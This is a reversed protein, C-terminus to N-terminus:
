KASVAIFSPRYVLQVKVQNRIPDNDRDTYVTRNLKFELQLSKTVVIKCSLYARFGSGSIVPLSMQYYMDPEYRYLLIGGAQGSHICFGSKLVFRDNINFFAWDIGLYSNYKFNENGSPHYSYGFESQLYSGKSDFIQRYRFLSKLGAQDLGLKVNLFHGDRNDRKVGARIKWDAKPSLSRTDLGFSEESELDMQFFWGRKWEWLYNFELRKSDSYPKRNVDLKTSRKFYGPTGLRYLVIFRHQEHGFFSLGAELAQGGTSVAAMEVFAIAGALAYKLHGGYRWYSDELYQIKVIGAGAHMRDTKMNLFFGDVTNNLTVSSRDSFLGCIELNDWKYSVGGGRLFRSTDSSTNVRLGRSRHLLMHPDQNWSNFSRRTTFLMGLGHDYQFDGVVLKLHNRMPEVLIGATQHNPQRLFALNCDSTKLQLRLRYHMDPSSTKLGSSLIGRIRIRRRFYNDYENTPISDLFLSDHELLMEEMLADPDDIMESDILDIIETQGFLVGQSIIFAVAIFVFKTLAAM